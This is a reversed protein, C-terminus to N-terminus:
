RGLTAGLMRCPLSYGRAKNMAENLIKRAVNDGSRTIEPGFDRQPNPIGNAVKWSAEAHKLSRAPEQIALNGLSASAV